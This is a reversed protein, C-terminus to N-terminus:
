ISLEQVEARWDADVEEFIEPGLLLKGRYPEVENLDLGDLEYTITVHPYYEGFKFTAGARCIDQHRYELMSDKFCLVIAGHPGLPKVQRAGGPKVLHEGKDNDIWSDPIKFWDVPTTSYAVTVHLDEPNLISSFGQEKAWEVLDDANLVQRRVYLTCNVTNSKLWEQGFASQRFLHLEHANLRLQQGEARLLRRAQDAVAGPDVADAGDTEAPNTGNGDAVPDGLLAAETEDLPEEELTDYESVPDLGLFEKRFEPPPVILEAGPSTVYNRLTNSRVSGVEAAKQPGLADGPWQIEWKGEPSVVNGTMILKSIVPTLIKPGAYNNRREEVRQAWNNEDQDSSLEGRESGILIRKPIGTAGSIIDLHKDILPGPDTIASSLQTATVGQLATIRKLQQSFEEAIREMRTVDAETYTADKDASWVMGGRSNYWYTEAGAGMLKELDQVTNYCAMLRPLGYVEDEDTVESLHLVRSWHVQLSRHPTPSGGGGVVPNGTQLTYTDPRGFRPSQENTDWTNITINPDAYVTMYLLPYNGSSLPEILPKGDRFGLLLVGFRGVGSVRDARELWSTVDYKKFLQYVSETFPSYDEATPDDSSGREDRIVPRDRWTAAPYARCVRNAIGNRYYMAFLQEVLLNKSWGFNEYLDRGGGHTLGLISALRDRLVTVVQHVKLSVVNSM